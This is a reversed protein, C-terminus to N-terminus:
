EDKKTIPLYTGTFKLSIRNGDSLDFGMEKIIIGQRDQHWFCITFSYIKNPILPERPYECIFHPDGTRAKTIVIPATGIYKFYKVLRNNENTPVIDGLNHSISDFAFKYVTDKFTINFTDVSLKSSKGGQGFTVCTTFLFTMLLLGIIKTM